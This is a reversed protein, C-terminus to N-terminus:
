EYGTAVFTLYRESGKVVTSSGFQYFNDKFYSHILGVYKAYTSYIRVTDILNSQFSHEVVLTSDFTYGNIITDKHIDRYYHRLEEDPNYAASLLKDHLADMREIPGALRAHAM